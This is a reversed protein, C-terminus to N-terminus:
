IDSTREPVVGARSEDVAAELTSETAVGLRSEEKKCTM